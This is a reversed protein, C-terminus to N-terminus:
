GQESEETDRSELARIRNSIDDFAQQLHEAQRKLAELEQEKPIPAGARAVGPTPVAPPGM